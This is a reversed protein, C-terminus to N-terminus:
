YATLARRQIFVICNSGSARKLCLYDSTDRCQEVCQNAPWNISQSFSSVNILQNTKPDPNCHWKYMQLAKSKSLHLKFSMKYKTINSIQSCQFWLVLSSSFQDPHHFLQRLQKIALKTEFKIFKAVSISISIFWCHVTKLPIIVSNLIQIQWVNRFM